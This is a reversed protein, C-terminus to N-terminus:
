FIRLLRYLALTLPEFPGAGKPLPLYVAKVFLYLLLITGLGGTAALTVPSRAGSLRMFAVVFVLTAVPFGLLPTGLCYLLILAVAAGLVPWSMPPPADATTEAAATRRRTGVLRAACTLALGVLVLRPWFAPGLQGPAAVQDLRGTAGLLALAAVIGAVPALAGSV